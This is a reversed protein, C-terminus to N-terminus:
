DGGDAMGERQETMREGCHRPAVPTGRVLLLVEAGCGECWYTVRETTLDVPEPDSGDPVHAAGRRLAGFTAIGVSWIGVGLLPGFVYPAPVVDFIVLAAGVAAVGAVVLKRM